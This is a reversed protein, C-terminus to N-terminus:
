GCYAASEFVGNRTGVRVLVNGSCLTGTGCAAGCGQANIIVGAQGPAVSLSSKTCETGSIQAVIVDSDTITSSVGTNLVRVTVLGNKCTAGGSPITISKEIQTSFLGSSWGYFLGVIGITILVLMVTAVVPTVGKLM